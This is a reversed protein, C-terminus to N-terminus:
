PAGVPTGAHVVLMALWRRCSIRTITKMLVWRREGRHRPDALSHVGRGGVPISADFM